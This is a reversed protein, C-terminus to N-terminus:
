KSIYEIFNTISEKLSNYGTLIIERDFEKEPKTPTDTWIVLLAKPNSTLVDKYEELYSQVSQIGDGLYSRSESYKVEIIGARYSPISLTNNKNIIEITIDPITTKYDYGYDKLTKKYKSVNSLRFPTHQYNVIILLRNNFKYVFKTTSLSKILRVRRKGGILRRKQELINIVEFLTLFEYIRDDNKPVLIQEKIIEFLQFSDNKIYIKYYLKALYYLKRYYKNKHNKVVKVLDYTLKQPLTVERLRPHILVKRIEEELHIIYNNNVSNKKNKSILKLIKTLMLKFLQNVKIDYVNINPKTVFISLDTFGSAARQKFTAGWDISGRIAGQSIVKQQETSKSFYHVINYIVDVLNMKECFIMYHIFKLENIDKQLLESDDFAMASVLGNLLESSNYLNLALYSNKIKEIM